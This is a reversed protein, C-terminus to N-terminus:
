LHAWVGKLKTEEYLSMFREKHACFCCSRWWLPTDTGLRGEPLRPRTRWLARQQASWLEASLHSTMLNLFKLNTSMDLCSSREANEENMNWGHPLEDENRLVGSRGVGGLLQVSQVVHQLSDPLHPPIVYARQKSVGRLFSPRKVFWLLWHLFGLLLCM